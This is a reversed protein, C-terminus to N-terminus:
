EFTEADKFSFGQADKDSVSPKANCQWDIALDSDDWRICREHEPSYIGSTKYLFDANESLVVFGHAFGPPIWLQKKNEASIVVGVWQGFTNSSKRIDVAM